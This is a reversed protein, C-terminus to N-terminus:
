LRPGLPGDDETRHLIDRQTGAQERSRRTAADAEAESPPAKAAGDDAGAGTNGQANMGPNRLEEGFEERADLGPKQPTDHPPKSAEHNSM